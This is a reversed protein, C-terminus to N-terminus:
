PRLSLRMRHEPGHAGAFVPGRDSMGLGRYVALAAANEADVELVLTTVEPWHRRLRAVSIRLAEHGWGRGQWPTAIKLGHLSAAEPAVWAPSLPPRKFLTLGVPRDAWFFCLGLMSDASGARWAELSEEFSGGLFDQRESVRLAALAALRTADLTSMDRVTLEPM